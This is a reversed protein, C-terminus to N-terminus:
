EEEENRERRKGNNNNNGGDSRIKQNRMKKYEETSTLEKINKIKDGFEDLLHTKGNVKAFSVDDLITLLQEHEAVSMSRMGSLFGKGLKGEIRKLFYSESETCIAMSEGKVGARGTRGTRHIYVASLKPFDYHIVLNAQPIDLGRAAVDTAILIKTIGTKFLALNELRQRQTLLSNLSCVPFGLLQLTMRVLECRVCSNAFVIVSKDKCNRLTIALFPLKVVHPVSVATQKITSPIAPQQSQDPNLLDKQGVVVPAIRKENRKKELVEEDEEEDDESDDEIGQVLDWVESPFALAPSSTATFMLTRLKNKELASKKKKLAGGSSTNNKRAEMLYEIVEITDERMENELIRDAEDLVLYRLNRMAPRTEEQFTRLVMALRGPTAVIIHPRSKSISELQKEHSTGGIVISVRVGIQTGLAVFSDAIQYGLERSATMVICYVGYLDKALDQLIPIAFAATKGSGTEAVGVLGGGFSSSSSSSSSTSSSLLLRPIAERQILTPTTMHLSNLQRILWDDVGLDKFSPQHHTTTATATTTSM